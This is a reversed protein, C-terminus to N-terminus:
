IFIFVYLTLFWQYPGIIPSAKNLNISTMPEVGTTEMFKQYVGVLMTWHIGRTLRENAKGKWADVYLKGVYDTGDGLVDAWDSYL